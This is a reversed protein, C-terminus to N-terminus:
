QIAAKIAEVEAPELIGNNNIDYQAEVSTKVRPNYANKLNQYRDILLKRAEAPQLYKEGNVDYKREAWQKVPIDKEVAKLEKAKAPASQRGVLGVSQSRPARLLRGAFAPEAIICILGVFIVFKKLM